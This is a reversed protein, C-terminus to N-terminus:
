VVGLARVIIADFLPWFEQDTSDKAKCGLVSTVVDEIFVLSRPSLAKEFHGTATTIGNDRLVKAVENITEQSVRQVREHLKSKYFRDLENLVETQSNFAANKRDILFANIIGKQYGSNKLAEQVELMHIM